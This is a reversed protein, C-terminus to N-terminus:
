EAQRSFARVYGEETERVLDRNTIPAWNRSRQQHKRLYELRRQVWGHQPVRPKEEVEKRVMFDKMGWWCIASAIASDGHGADIADNNGLLPHIARSSNENRIYRGCERAVVESKIIIRGTRIADAMEMLVELGGDKNHYGFKQMAKATFPTEKRNGDVNKAMYCSPYGRSLFERCFYNGQAGNSEPTMFANSFIKGIAWAMRGFEQPLTNTSRWELVQEGTERCFLDLSSYSAQRGGTGFAIDAGMGFQGPPVHIVKHEDVEYKRWLAISGNPHERLVPSGGDDMARLDIEARMVPDCVTEEMAELADRDFVRDGAGGFDMDLEAAISQPDTSRRCENDYYPSRIKGDAIFRYGEPFKYDKDVIVLEGTKKDCYYLGAAKDPDDQWSIKVRTANECLSEDTCIKYFVGGQGRKRAPTSIFIRCPCNYQLADNVFKDKDGDWSHMEDFMFVQKRGGRDVDKGAAYGEITSRTMENTIIHDTQNRRRMEPDGYGPRMFCPLHEEIYDLKYMLSSTSGPRDVADEDKSVLGAHFHEKFRWSHDLSYLVMWSAGVDRSKRIIIDNKGLAGSIQLFVRDQDPRTRFPIEKANGFWRNQQWGVAIHPSLLYGFANVYFLIDRSCMIWLERANEVSEYGYELVRRRFEMFKAPDKPVLTRYYYDTPGLPAETM